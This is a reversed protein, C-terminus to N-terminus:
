EDETIDYFLKVWWRHHRADGEKRILPISAIARELVWRAVRRPVLARRRWTWARGLRPVIVNVKDM